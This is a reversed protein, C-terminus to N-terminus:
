GISTEVSKLARCSLAVPELPLPELPPPYITLLIRIRPLRNSRQPTRWVPLRTAKQQAYCSTRPTTVQAREYVILLLVWMLQTMLAAVPQPGHKPPYIVWQLVPLICLVWLVRLLRLAPQQLLRQLARPLLYRRRLQLAMMQKPRLQPSSRFQNRRCDYGRYGPM